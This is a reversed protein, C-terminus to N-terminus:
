HSYNLRTRKRETCAACLGRATPRLPNASSSGRRHENKGASDRPRRQLRLEFFRRASAPWLTQAHRRGGGQQRQEALPFLAPVAALQASSIITRRHKQGRFWRHNKEQYFREPCGIPQTPQGIPCTFFSEFRKQYVLKKSNM